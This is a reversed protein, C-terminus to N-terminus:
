AITHVLKTYEDVNIDSFCEYRGGFERDPLYRNLRYEKHLLKELDWLWEADGVLLHEVTYYYPMAEKGAFRHKVPKTTIGIKYFEENDDFCSILYLSAYGNKNSASKVFGRKLRPSFEKACEPCGEGKHYHNAYSQMFSGHELCNIKLLSHADGIYVVDSYDYKGNHVSEFRELVQELYLVRSLKSNEWGCHICGKGMLHNYPIQSFKGHIKCTLEVQTNANLYEVSSYDYRDGHVKKAKEIFEETNISNKRASSIYSCKVCGQGMKLYKAAIEFPGHQHCITTVINDAGTYEVLELGYRDGHTQTVQFKYFETPTLCNDPSLRKPPWSTRFVKFVFGDKECLLYNGEKRLFTIDTGDVEGSWDRRKTM